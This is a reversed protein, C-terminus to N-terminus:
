PDVSKSLSSAFNPPRIAFRAKNVRKCFRELGIRNLQDAPSQLTFRPFFVVVIKQRVSKEAHINRSLIIRSFTQPM